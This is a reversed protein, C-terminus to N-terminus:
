VRMRYLTELESFGLRELSRPKINTDAAICTIIHNANRRGFDIMWHLLIRAARPHGPMVYLLDQFLIRVNRDLVSTTLRVLMVGVPVGSRRVLMINGGTKFYDYPRFGGPNIHPDNRKSVEHAWSVLTPVLQPNLFDAVTLEEITYNRGSQM